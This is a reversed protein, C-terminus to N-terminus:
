IKLSFFGLRFVFCVKYAPVNMEELFDVAAHDFPSSFCDM